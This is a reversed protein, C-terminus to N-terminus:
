IKIIKMLYKKHFEEKTEYGMDYGAKPTVM